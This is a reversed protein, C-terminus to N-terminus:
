KEFDTDFIEINKYNESLVQLIRGRSKIFEDDPFDSYANTLFNNPILVDRVFMNIADAAIAEVIEKHLRSKITKKPNNIHKKLRKKIIAKKSSFKGSPQNFCFDRRLNL